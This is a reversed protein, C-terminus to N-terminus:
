AGKGNSPKAPTPDILWTLEPSHECPAPFSAMISAGIWMADTPYAIQGCTPCTVHGAKLLPDSNRPSTM